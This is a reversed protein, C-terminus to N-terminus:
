WKFEEDEEEFGENRTTGLTRSTECIMYHLNMSIVRISPTKYLEEKNLATAEM